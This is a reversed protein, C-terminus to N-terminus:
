SCTQERTMIKKFTRRTIFLLMVVACGSANIYDMITTQQQLSDIQHGELPPSSLVNVLAYVIDDKSYFSVANEITLQITILIDIHNLLM